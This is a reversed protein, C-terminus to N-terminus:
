QIVVRETKVSSGLQLGVLYTGASYGTMDISQQQNWNITEILKGEMTMIQVQDFKSNDTSEINIVGNSPNPYLSITEGIEIDDTSLNDEDEIIQDMDTYCFQERDIEVNMDEITTSECVEYPMFEYADAYHFIQNHHHNKLNLVVNNSDSFQNINLEENINLSGLQGSDNKYIFWDYQGNINFNNCSVEDYSNEGIFNIGNVFSGEFSNLKILGEGITNSESILGYNNVSEVGYFINEVIILNNEGLTNIGFAEDETSGATINFKNMAIEGNYQGNIIICKEVNNFLESYVKLDLFGKSKNSIDLGIYLNTYINNFSLDEINPKTNMSNITSNLAKIATGRLNEDVTESGNFSNEKIRLYEAGILNIYTPSIISATNLFSNNLIEHSKSYGPTEVINIGIKSNTITSNTVKIKGGIEDIENDFAHKSINSIAIKANKIETNEVTAISINNSESWLEIGGWNNSCESVSNLVANELTLHAGEKVVIGSNPYNSGLDSNDNFNLNLGTIEYDINSGIVITGRVNIIGDNNSDILEFNEDEIFISNPYDFHPGSPEFTVEKNISCGNQSSITFNYTGASLDNRTWDSSGDSWQLNYDNMNGQNLQVAVNSIGNTCSEENLIVDFDIPILDQAMQVAAYADLRGAGLEGNYIANQTDVSVATSKLIMEVEAPSLCPNASLMLGVTGAVYPAAFSTGNGTLYTNNGITIPVDYGPAVLDVSDNHQHTSTEDQPFRQHNDNPGISSVSIVNEFSAPYVYNNAGGCTPGNGAAAIIVTGNNYVENIVSQYYSNYNCGSAWSLNVIRAGAYSAQLIHNYNMGYLMMKCKNGISSKGVGNNTNGAATTAVATGHNYNSGNIDPSMFSVKNALEEHITDFNSDLVGIKIAPSGKTINWANQANILDLAYDDSFAINYDNPEYLLTFEEIIEPNVLDASRNVYDMFSSFDGSIEIEYVRQLNEMKSDPLAKKIKTLNFQSQIVQIESENNVTLWIKTSQALINSAVLILVTVLLSLKKM